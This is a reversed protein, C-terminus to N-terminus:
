LLLEDDLLEEEGTNGWLMKRGDVITNGAAQLVKEVLEEGKYNDRLNVAEILVPLNVGTIVHFSLDHCASVLQNFPTGGFLDALVLTDPGFKQLKQRLSDTFSLFNDGEFYTVTEISDCEGCIMRFSELLGDAFSGHSILVIGNQSKQKM